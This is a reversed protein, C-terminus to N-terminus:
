RVLHYLFTELWDCFRENDKWESEIMQHNIDYMIVLLMHEIMETSQGKTLGGLFVKAALQASEGGIFAPVMDCLKIGKGSKVYEAHAAMLGKTNGCSEELEKQRKIFKSATM